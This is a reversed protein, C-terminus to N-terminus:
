PYIAVYRHQFVTYYLATPFPSLLLVFEQKLAWYLMMFFVLHLTAASQLSCQRSCFWLNWLRRWVQIISNHRPPLKVSSQQPHKLLLSNDLYLSLQSRCFSQLIYLFVFFHFVLVTDTQQPILQRLPVTPESNHLSCDTAGNKWSTKNLASPRIFCTTKFCTLISAWLVLTGANLIREWWGVWRVRNPDFCHSQAPHTTCNNVLKFGLQCPGTLSSPSAFSFNAWFRTSCSETVRCSNTLLWDSSSFPKHKQKQNNKATVIDLPFFLRLVAQFFFDFKIIYCSKKEPKMEREPELEYGTLSKTLAASVFVIRPWCKQEASWELVMRPRHTHARM